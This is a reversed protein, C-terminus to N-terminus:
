CSEKGLIRSHNRRIQVNRVVVVWRSHDLDIRREPYSRKQRIQVRTLAVEVAVVVTKGVM